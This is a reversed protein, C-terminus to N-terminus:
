SATTPCAGPQGSAVGKDCMEGSEVKGNGCAPAAAEAGSDVVKGGTGASGSSGSKGATNGKGTGASAGNGAAGGTSTGAEPRGAVAITTDESCSSLVFAAGLVAASSVLLHGNRFM